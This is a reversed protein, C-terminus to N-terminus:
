GNDAEEFEFVVIRYKKGYRMGKAIFAPSIGSKPWPADGNSMACTIKVESLIYRDDAGIRGRSIQLLGTEDYVKKM